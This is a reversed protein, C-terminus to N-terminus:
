RTMRIIEQAMEPLTQGPKRFMSNMQVKYMNEQNVPEFRSALKSVHYNYDLRKLPEKDTVNSTALEYAKIKDNWNNM